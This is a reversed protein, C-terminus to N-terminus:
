SLRAFDVRDPFLNRLYDIVGNATAKQERRVCLDEAHLANSPDCRGTYKSM